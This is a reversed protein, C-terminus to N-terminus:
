PTPIKPIDPFAHFHLDATMIAANAHRACAAILIDQAPLIKGQRDLSWALQTAGEWLTADTEESIMVDFFCGLWYKTQEVRIGRLVELRIMGCTLLDFHWSKAWKGLTHVPDLKRRLLGIFVNSDIIVRKKM